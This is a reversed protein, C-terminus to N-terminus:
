AIVQYILPDPAPQADSLTYCRNLIAAVAELRTEDEVFITFLTEGATVHDGVKKHNAV